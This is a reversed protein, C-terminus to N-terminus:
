EVRAWIRSLNMSGMGCPNLAVPTSSMDWRVAENTEPDVVGCRVGERSMLAVAEAGTVNGGIAAAGVEDTGTGAAVTERDEPRMVQEDATEDVAENTTVNGLIETSDEPPRVRVMEISDSRVAAPASDTTVQGLIETSDEPPRIRGANSTTDAVAVGADASVDANAQTSTDTSAQLAVDGNATAVSDGQDAVASTDRAMETSSTDAVDPASSTETTDATVRASDSEQGSANTTDREMPSYGATDAPATESRPTNPQSSPSPQAPATATDSGAGMATDSGAGTTTGGGSPQGSSSTDSFVAGSNDRGSEARDPRSCATGAFVVVGTLIARLLAPNSISVSM